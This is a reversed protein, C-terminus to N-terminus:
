PEFQGATSPPPGPQFSPAGVRGASRLPAVEQAGGEQPGEQDGEEGARLTVEKRLESATVGVGSSGNWRAAPEPCEGRYFGARMILFSFLNARRSSGVPELELGSSSM